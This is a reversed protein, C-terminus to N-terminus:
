LQLNTGDVSAKLPPKDAKPKVGLDYLSTGPFNIKSLKSNM